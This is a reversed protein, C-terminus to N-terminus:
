HLGMSKIAPISFIHVMNISTSITKQECCINGGIHGRREVVLCKKGAKKAEYAFVSGYLGAGVILYNYVLCFVGKM